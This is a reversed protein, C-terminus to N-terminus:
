CKKLYSEGKNIADGQFGGGTVAGGQLEGYIQNSRQALESAKKRFFAFPRSDVAISNSSMNQAGQNQAGEHNGLLFNEGGSYSLEAASVNLSSSANMFSSASLYQPWADNKVIGDRGNADTTLSLPLMSATTLYDHSNVAVDMATESANEFGAFISSQQHVTGDQLQYDPGIIFKGLAEFAQKLSPFNKKFKIQVVHEHIKPQFILDSIVGESYQKLLFKNVQKPLFDMKESIKIVAVQDQFLCEDWDINEYIFFEECIMSPNKSAQGYESLLNLRQWVQELSTIEECFRIYSHYRSRSPEHIVRQTKKNCSWLDHLSKNLNCYNVESNDKLIVKITHRDDGIQCGTIVDLMQRRVRKIRRPTKKVQAQNKSSGTQDFYPNEHIKSFTIENSIVINKKRKQHVKESSSEKSSVDRTKDQWVVPQIQIPMFIQIPKGRAPAPNVSLPKQTSYGSHPIDYIRIQNHVKSFENSSHAREDKESETLRTQNNASTFLDVPTTVTTSSKSSSFINESTIPFELGESLAGVKADISKNRGKMLKMFNLFNRRQSENFLSVLRQSLDNDLSDSDLLNIMVVLYASLSSEDVKIRKVPPEEILDESLNYESFYESILVEFANLNKVIKEDQFFSNDQFFNKDINGKLIEKFVNFKGLFDSDFEEYPLSFIMRIERNKCLYRLISQMMEPSLYLVSLQIERPNKGLGVQVEKVTVGYNVLLINQRQM